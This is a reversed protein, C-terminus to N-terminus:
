VGTATDAQLKGRKRAIRLVLPLSWVTLTFIGLGTAIPREFFALLSGDSKILSTSLSREVLGGMVIGLITPAVPFGNEEMYYALLGMALM